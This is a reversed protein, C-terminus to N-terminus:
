QSPLLIDSSQKIWNAAKRLKKADDSYIAEKLEMDLKKGVEGPLPLVDGHVEEIHRKSLTLYQCHMCPKGAVMSRALDLDDVNAGDSGVKSNSM